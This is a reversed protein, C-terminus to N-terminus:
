IRYFAVHRPGGGTKYQVDGNRGSVSEWKRPGTKKFRCVEDTGLNPVLLEGSTPHLVVQHAHSSEQRSQNRGSDSEKDYKLQIIVPNGLQVSHLADPRIPSLIPVFAVSGSSYKPYMIM